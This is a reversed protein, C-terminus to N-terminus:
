APTLEITVAVPIVHCVDKDVFIDEVTQSQYGPAEVILTYTGAREGAGAYRGAMFDMMTESFDGETLTLRADSIAAGTDGDSVTASLGYVFEATCLPPPDFLDPIEGPICAAQLLAIATITLVAARM